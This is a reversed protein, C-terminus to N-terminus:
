RAFQSDALEEFEATSSDEALRWFEVTAPQGIEFM